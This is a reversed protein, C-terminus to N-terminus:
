SIWRGQTDHQHIQVRVRVRIRVRPTRLSDGHMGSDWCNRACELEDCVMVIRESDSGAAWAGGLCEGESGEDSGKLARIM